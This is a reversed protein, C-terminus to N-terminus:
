REGADIETGRSENPRTRNNSQSTKPLTDGAGVKRGGPGPIGEEGLGPSPEIPSKVEKFKEMEDLIEQEINSPFTYGLKECEKRYYAMSIVNRDLMNNLEELRKARNVPLKDGIAINIDTDRYDGEGYVVMWFKLDYFLQTLIDQGVRDRHELKALTPIFQLKLGMDSEALQVDVDGRAIKSTGSAEYMSEQLFAVMDLIPQVSKIGEVRKFMTAGPVGLVVGPAVTWGGAPEGADTAYVGLGELALAIEGDSILQNVGTILREFGRLESSGHPDGQWDINPFDYVPITTIGEPLLGEPITDRIKKAEKPNNWGLMSWIAEHRAVRRSGNVDVYMYQLIKVRTRGPDEPDEWQTVLRVGIKRDLDDPDYVPFWSGPDVSTLSIRQGIPKNPDATIHYVYQGRTVGSQKATDFRSYFKERKFFAELWENLPSNGKGEAKVELGKLLYYATTDVVKRPNPIFIPHEDDGRRVLKFAQDWNWYMQDYLAYSAIREQDEEPVWDPYGSIFPRTTSWSTFLNIDFAGSAM